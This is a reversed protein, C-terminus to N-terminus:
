RRVAVLDILTSMGVHGAGEDLETEYSELVAIEMDSFAERLLEPTYLNELVKPGGTGYDLQKPTYGHLMLLGGPKVAAKMREFLRARAEPGVFQIFVGLVLDYAAEPWDWTEIDAVEYQVSVGREEALARAKAVASPAGDWASVVLGQEALFVSNRGEGDAVSLATAGPTLRDAHRRLFQAPARGFVYEKTSFREEWM